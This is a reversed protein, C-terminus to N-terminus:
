ISFEPASTFSHTIIRKGGDTVTAFSDTIECMLDQLKQISHRFKKTFYRSFILFISNKDLFNLHPHMKRGGELDRTAPRTPPGLSSPMM